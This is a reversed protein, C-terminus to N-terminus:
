ATVDLVGQADFEYIDKRFSVTGKRNAWASVYTTRIPVPDNVAVDLREGSNFVADISNVDWGDNTQLVFAVLAEVNEVRVCGSSHFRLNQGFLTQTPTDHLYVAHANHFNIKVHGMSNEAGPDQRFTYNVAEETSWDIDTPLLENGSGDFIRINYNTLYNPDENMYTILDRRIISKPVTWYPNFNIQHIRSKLIPTQRDIRGVVAIHRNYVTGGQTVEILAAPINVVVNTDPMTPALQGIRAYNINLQALRQQVPVAMANWTEEDIKGSVVLGHRIQFTRIAIDTADDVSDSMYADEPLDGTAILFRKLDRVSAKRSAPGLGFMEQSPEPWGGAAAIAEYKRIALEMFYITEMSLVPETVDIADLAAGTKGGVDNGRLVQTEPAQQALLPHVLTSSAGLAAAGHIFTRRTLHSLNRHRM